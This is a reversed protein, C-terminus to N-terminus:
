KPYKKWDSEHGYTLKNKRSKQFAEWANKLIKFPRLAWFDMLILDWIVQFDCQLCMDIRTRNKM